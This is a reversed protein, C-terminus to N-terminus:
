KKGWLQEYLAKITSSVQNLTLLMEPIRMSQLVLTLNRIDQVYLGDVAKALKNLDPQMRELNNNLRQLETFVKDPSPLKSIVDMWGFKQNPTVM